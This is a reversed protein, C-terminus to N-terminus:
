YTRRMRFWAAGFLSYVGFAILGLAVIVVLGPGFPKTMLTALAASFGIPQSPNSKYAAYIILLGILSLVVGQAVTGFRGIVTIAREEESTLSYARFQRKFNRELGKYINYLGVGLVIIGVIGVLVIGWQKSMIMSLWKAQSGSSSAAAHGKMIGYATWALFGYTLGSIFYGLRAISGKFDNGKGLPDFAARIIGWLGYAALGILVVWLMFKGFPQQGITALANQPTGFQGGKGTAVRFSLIGMVIYLVGRVAFGLRTLFEVTPSYAAQHAANNISATASM